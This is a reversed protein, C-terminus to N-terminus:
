MRLSGQSLQSFAPLHPPTPLSRPSPSRHSTPTPYMSGTDPPTPSTSVSTPSTPGRLSPAPSPRPSPYPPPAPLPDSHPSPLLQSTHPWVPSSLNSDRPHLYTSPPPLPPLYTPSTPPPPLHPLHSSSHALACQPSTPPSTSRCAHCPMGTRQRHRDTESPTASAFPAQEARSPRRKAGARLAESGGSM